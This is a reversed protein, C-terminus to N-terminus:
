GAVVKVRAPPSDVGGVSLVLEYEGPGRFLSSGMVRSFEIREGPPLAYERADRAGNGIALGWSLLSEGNVSLESTRVRTDITETGLNTVAGSITTQDLTELTVEHPDVELEVDLRPETV